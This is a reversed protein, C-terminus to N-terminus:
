TSSERAPQKTAESHKREPQGAGMKSRAGGSADRAEEAPWPVKAHLRALATKLVGMSLMQTPPAQTRYGVNARCIKAADDCENHECASEAVIFAGIVAWALVTLVRSMTSLWLLHCAVSNAIYDRWSAGAAVTANRWAHCRTVRVGSGRRAM